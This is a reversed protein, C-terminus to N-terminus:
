FFARPIDPLMSLQLKDSLHLTKLPYAAARRKSSLHYERIINLGAVAYTCTTPPSKLVHMVAQSLSSISM